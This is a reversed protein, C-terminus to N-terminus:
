NTIVKFPDVTISAAGVGTEDQAENVNVTQNLGVRDRNVVHGNMSQQYGTHSDGCLEEIIEVVCVSM